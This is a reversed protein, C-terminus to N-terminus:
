IDNYNIRNYLQVFNVKKIFEVQQIMSNKMHLNHIFWSQQSAQTTMSTNDTLTKLSTSIPAFVKTNLKRTLYQEFGSNLSSSEDSTHAELLPHINTPIAIINVDLIKKYKAQCDRLYEVPNLCHSIWMLQVEISPMIAEESDIFQQYHYMDIFIEYHREISATLKIEYNRISFFFDVMAGCTDQVGSMFPEIQSKFYPFLKAHNWNLEEGKERLFTCGNM